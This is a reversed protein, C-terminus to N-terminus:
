GDGTDLGHCALCPEGGNEAQFYGGHVDIGEPGHCNTCAQATVAVPGAFPSAPYDAYFYVRTARDDGLAVRFLYRVNDEVADGDPITFSYSGDGNDTLASLTDVITTRVTGETRYGRQITDYGATLTGDRRLDFSVELDDTDPVVAIAINEVVEIPDLAHYDPASAFSGDDHCVGCSELPIIAAGPGPDGPAGDSGDAGPPGGPGTPGAPGSAGDDGECGSMAFALTGVVLISWAWRTIRHLQNM